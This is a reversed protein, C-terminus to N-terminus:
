NLSGSGEVDNLSGEEKLFILFNIGEGHQGSGMGLVFDYFNEKRECIEYDQDCFVSISLFDQM